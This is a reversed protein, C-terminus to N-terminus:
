FSIAEADRKGGCLHRFPRPAGFLEVLEDGVVLLQLLFVALVFFFGGALRSTFSTALFMTM